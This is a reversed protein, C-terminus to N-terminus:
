SHLTGRSVEHMPCCCHVAHYHVFCCPALLTCCHGCPATPCVMSYQVVAHACRFKTLVASLRDLQVAPYKRSHQGPDLIEELRGTVLLTCTQVVEAMRVQWGGACNLPLAASAPLLVVIVVTISQKGASSSSPILVHCQAGVHWKLLPPLVRCVSELYRSNPRLITQLDPGFTYSSVPYLWTSYQSSLIHCLWIVVEILLM